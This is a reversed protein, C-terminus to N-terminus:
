LGRKTRKYKKKRRHSPNPQNTPPQDRTNSNISPPHHITISPSPHHHRPSQTPQKTNMYHRVYGIILARTHVLSFFVLLSIRQDLQIKARNPKVRNMYYCGCIRTTYLLESMLPNQGNAQRRPMRNLATDVITNYHAPLFRAM